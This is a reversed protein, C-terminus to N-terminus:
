GKLDAEIDSLGLEKLKQPSPIATDTQWGMRELFDDYLEKEDITLGKMPGTELPPTGCVRQPLAFDELPKIGHKINFAQRMNQIREGMKLYHEPPYDWGTAANTYAPLDLEGGMQVGFLCAGVSNAFQMYNSGAVLHRSRGDNPQYKSKVLFAGPMKPLDKFIKNLAFLDLWQYGHNTHRGPTPELAYSVIFGPDFRTDHMPLDQGGAHMAYESGKGMKVAAAKSGDALIDGIGDRQIMKEVLQIIAGANGWLLDIGDLEERSLVGEEYCEMAWAVASGAGIVDMGARNLMDNVKFLSHLDSNLLLTGFACSTEYEPKHTEGVPYPGDDVQLVGGCGMPCSYCHYSKKQYDIIRQPNINNAHSAIPFDYHGSGKWNKVPSDGNESSIVNTIITGFKKLVIKVQDGSAALGLPSVRGFRGLFNALKAGMIKSAGQGKNFWTMFDANMQKLKDPNATEIKQKGGVAVGKLKKSGMVAGLGSRAAIRAKDTVIGSILSLKEGSPGILALQVKKGIEEKLKEDTETVDLGWLHAADVLEAEGDIVKLYVPKDSVGRFFIGDYGSRKLAYSFRGGGNADGWGGTLPSKGAAMWRGTFHAGTGTLLGSMLGLINVPGLPDADAPIRDYLLKAALGVGSGFKEYVEDPIIEERIDGSGLDVLLIKGMVGRDM